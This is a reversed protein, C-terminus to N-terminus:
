KVLDLDIHKTEKFHLRLTYKGNNDKPMVVVNKLGMHRALVM